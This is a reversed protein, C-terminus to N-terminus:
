ISQQYIAALLTEVDARANQWYMATTGPQGHRNDDCHYDSGGTVLLGMRRVMADLKAFSRKQQSPHYVEVGMLGQNQWSLCACSKM